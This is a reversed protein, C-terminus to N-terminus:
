KLVRLLPKSDDPIGTPVMREYQMNHTQPQLVDRLVVALTALLEPSKKIQEILEEPSVAATPRTESDGRIYGAPYFFEEFRQANVKRGSDLVRGYTRLTMDATAHGNDGQVAKVDGKSLALKYTTASIRLSHFVVFPLDNERVLERFRRSIVNGEYPSGDSQALVLDYDTYANGMHYKTEDQLEKYRRLIHALTVPIWVTRESSKTKPKKLVLRQRADKESKMKTPFIIIIDKKGLKKIAEASVRSLQRDIVIRANDDEIDKDSIHVRSWQLGCIEGERVNCAFALHLSIYLYTRKCLSLAKAITDADWMDREEAEHEPLTADNFPNEKVINWKKFQKFATRLLKACSRVTCPTIPQPENPNCQTVAPTCALDDLFMDADKTTFTQARNSGILPKIYNRILGTQGQFQSHGWKKKGYSDVFDDLLKAITDKNPAVYDNNEKGEDYERCIREAEVKTKVTQTGQKKVGKKNEYTYHIEYGRGRKRYSAM